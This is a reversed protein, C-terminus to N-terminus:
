LQPLVGLLGSFDGDADIELLAPWPVSGSHSCELVPEDQSFGLIM